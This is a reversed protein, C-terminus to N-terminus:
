LIPQQLKTVCIGLFAGFPNRRFSLFRDVRQFYHHWGWPFFLVSKWSIAVGPAIGRVMREIEWVTYFHAQCYISKSSLWSRIRRSVGLISVKNLVGLYVTRRSVRFAEKLAVMPDSMFELATIITVIDFSCDPFDLHSAEESCVTAFTSCKRTAIELMSQSPEIGTVRLGLSQFFTINHGTGCGVELLSQGSRPKALRLFLENETAYMYRGEPSLYWRDYRSAVDEFSM